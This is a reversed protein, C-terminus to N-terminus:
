LSPELVIQHVAGDYSGAIFGFPTSCLASIGATTPRKTDLWRREKLSFLGITGDYAATAVIQSDQHVAVARVSRVHQTPWKEYTGESSWIVLNLDRSVTVFGETTPACGNVISIHADRNTRLVRLDPLSLFTVEADPSTTLLQGSRHSVSKIANKQVREKRLFRLGGSGIEFLLLDGTFSGVVLHRRGDIEFTESCNLPSTHRYVVEDNTVDYVAGDHGGVILKDDAWRIFNCLGPAQGFRQGDKHIIGADGVAYSSGEHWTVANVSIDPVIRDLNWREARLDLLAYTSGFTAVAVMDDSLFVASRAWVISPIQFVRELVLKDGDFHWRKATGDYSFSLLRRGDPSLCLCKVVADHCKWSKQEDSGVSVIFGDDNGVLFGGGPRAIIIDADATSVRSEAQVQATRANWTLIEGADDVTTLTLGDASWAIANIDASLPGMRLLQSTEVSYICATRDRSCTVIKDGSPSFVAKEVDDSHWNYVALLKLEPVSWLRVSHDSSASLLQRGDPSFSCHNVLHDHSGRAVLARERGSWLYIQNDYGATAVWGNHVAVGSIPGIHGSM